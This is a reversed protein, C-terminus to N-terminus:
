LECKRNIVGYYKAVSISLLSFCLLRSFGHHRRKAFGNGLYGSATQGRKRSKKSHTKHLKFDTKVHTNDENLRYKYFTNINKNVLATQKSILQKWGEFFHGMEEFSKEIKEKM